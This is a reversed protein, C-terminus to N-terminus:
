SSGSILLFGQVSSSSVFRSCAWESRPLLHASIAFLIGPRVSLAMFFWQFLALLRSDLCAFENARPRVLRPLAGDLVVPDAPVAQSEGAFNTAAEDEDDEDRLNLFSSVVFPPAPLAAMALPTRVACESPALLESESSSSLM